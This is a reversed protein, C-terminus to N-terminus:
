AGRGRQGYTAKFIQDTLWRKFGPGDSFQKFLETDDKMLGVIVRGLAKDHEIRAHRAIEGTAKAIVAAVVLNPYRGEVLGALKLRRHQMKGIPRGKQVRDLLM